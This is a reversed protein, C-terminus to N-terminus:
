DIARAVFRRVVGELPEDSLARVYVAGHRRAFQRLEDLLGALRALYARIAAPDMTVDVEAKTEADVLSYDGEFTPEVEQRCLVQVLALDHGAASARRLAQTVPGPDFFDSLVVLMGPRKSLLLARDIADALSIGGNATCESLERLLSGLAAGGRRAPGTRLRGQATAKEPDAGSSVALQVRQAGSSALYGFAAALRRAAEFKSPDGYNLSASADLLLRM